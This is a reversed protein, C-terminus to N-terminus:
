RTYSWNQRALKCKRFWHRGAPPAAVLVAVPKLFCILNTAVWQDRTSSNVQQGRSM